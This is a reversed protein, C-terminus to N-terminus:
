VGGAAVAQLGRARPAPWLTGRRQLMLGSVQGREGCLRRLCEAEPKTKLAYSTQVHKEQRRQRNVRLVSRGTSQQRTECPRKACRKKLVPARWPRPQRSGIAKRASQLSRQRPKTPAPLLRRLCRGTTGSKSARKSRRNVSLLASGGSPRMWRKKRCACPPSGSAPRMAPRRRATKLPLASCALRKPRSSPVYFHTGSRSFACASPNATTRFPVTRRLPRCRLWCAVGVWCWFM